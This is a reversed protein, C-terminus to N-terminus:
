RAGAESLSRLLYADDIYDEVMRTASFLPGNTM